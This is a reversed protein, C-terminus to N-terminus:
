PIYFFSTGDQSKTYGQEKKEPRRRQQMVEAYTKQSHCEHCLSQWNATDWFLKTDGRHPIIHDVDTAPRGCKVCIPHQILYSKRAKQWATNYGRQTATKRKADCEALYKKRAEEKMRRRSEQWEAYHRACYSKGNEAWDVCGPRACPRRPRKTAPTM